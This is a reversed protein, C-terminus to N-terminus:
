FDLTKKLTWKLFINLSMIFVIFILLNFLILYIYFNYQIQLMKSANGRNKLRKIPFTGGAEWYRRATRQIIENQHYFIYIAM